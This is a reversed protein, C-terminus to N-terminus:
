KCTKPQREKKPTPPFFLSFILNERAREGKPGRSKTRKRSTRRKNEQVTPTPPAVPQIGISKRVRLLLSLPILRSINQPTSIFFYFLLRHEKIIGGRVPRIVTWGNTRRGLLLLLAAPRAMDRDAKKEFVDKDILQYVGASRQRQWRRQRRPPM